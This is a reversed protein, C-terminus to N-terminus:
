TTASLSRLNIGMEKAFPAVDKGVDVGRLSTIAAAAVALVFIASIGM